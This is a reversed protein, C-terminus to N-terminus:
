VKYKKYMFYRKIVSVLCTFRNFDLFIALDCKELRLDLTRNYNGEIIYEDLSLLENLKEDFEEKSINVWNPKWYINDLHYVPINLIKSFKKGLTSKGSGLNGTLTIHM